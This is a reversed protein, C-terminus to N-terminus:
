RDETVAIEIRYRGARAAFALHESTSAGRSRLVEARVLTWWSQSVLELGTTDRVSVSFRYAGSRTTGIPSVIQLPIRCFVDVVTQASAPRFSRVISVALASENQLWRGASVVMVITLAQAIHAARKM